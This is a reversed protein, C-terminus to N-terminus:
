QYTAAIAARQEPAMNVVQVPDLGKGILLAINPDSPAAGQPAAYGAPPGANAPAQAPASQNWGANPTQPPPSANLGGWADNQWGGGQPTPAAAAAGAAAPAAATTPKRFQGANYANLVPMVQACMADWEQDSQADILTWGEGNATTKRGLVGIVPEGIKDRLIAVLGKGLIFTDMWSRGPTPGTVMIVDADVKDTPDYSNNPSKWNPTLSKPIILFLAGLMSMGENKLDWKDGVAVEPRRLPNDPTTM